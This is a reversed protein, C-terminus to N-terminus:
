WIMTMSLMRIHRWNLIMMLMMPSGGDIRFGTMFKEVCRHCTFRFHGLNYSQRACEM